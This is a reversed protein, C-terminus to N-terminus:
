PQKAAGFAGIFNKEGDLSEMIITGGLEAAQPGYFSAEITGRVGTAGDGNASVDGIIHNDAAIYHLTPTSFDWIENGDGDVDGNFIATRRYFNVDANIVFTVAEPANYANADSDYDQIHGAGKGTFKVITEASAAPNPIGAVGGIGVTKIGALGYGHVLSSNDTKDLEWHILAMYKTAFGFKTANSAVHLLSTGDSFATISNSIEKAVETGMATNDGVYEDAGVYLTVDKLQGPNDGDFTVKIVPADYRKLSTTGANENYDRTVGTLASLNYSLDTASAFATDFDAPLPNSIAPMNAHNTAIADGFQSTHTGNNLGFVGFYFNNQGIARFNGALESGGAGYFNAEIDGYMLGGIDDNGVTFTKNTDAVIENNADLSLVTNGPVSGVKFDLETVRDGGACDANVVDKCTNTFDLSVTDASFNIDATVDFRTHYYIGGDREFVGRGKGRFKVASALAIFDTDATTTIGTVIFGDTISSNAILNRTKDKTGVDELRWNIFAMHHPYFGFTQLGRDVTITALDLNSIYVSDDLDNIINATSVSKDASHTFPNNQKSAADPDITLEFASVVENYNSYEFTTSGTDLQVVVRTVEGKDDFIISATPNTIIAYHTATREYDGYIDWDHGVASREYKFKNYDTNFALANMTFTKNSNARDLIAETLSTYAAPIDEMTPPTVITTTPDQQQIQYAADSSNIKKRLGGFAGYYYTNGNSMAFTGGLEHAHLGYFRADLTGSLDNAGTGTNVAGTIQNSIFDNTVTDVFDNNALKNDGTYTKAAVHKITKGNTYFIDDTSFDLTALRDAGTCDANAVDKCTNSSSINIAQDNFRVQATIDFVTQYNENSDNEYVGRGKGTFTADRLLKPIDGFKTEIGAIMMGQREELSNGTLGAPGNEFVYWNIYLMNGADFGFFSNDRTLTIIQTETGDTFGLNETIDGTFGTKNLTGNNAASYSTTADLDVKFSAIEGDDKLRVQISSGIIRSLTINKDSDATSWDWNPARKRNAADIKSVAIANMIFNRTEESTIYDNSQNYNITHNIDPQTIDVFVGDISSTTKKLYNVDNLAHDFAQYINASALYGTPLERPTLNNGNDIATTIATVDLAISNVIGDRGAGFAGYYYSNDDTLAFTGGLERLQTGYFRTNLKGTLSGLTLNNDNINNETYTILNTSFNLSNKWEDDGDECDIKTVLCTNNSSIKITKNTGFDVDAVIDFVTDYSADDDSTDEYTGRGRGTFQVKGDRANLEDLTTEVGAIMSGSINYNRDELITDDTALASTKTINWDIYALYNTNYGFFDKSRDVNIETTTPNYDAGSISATFKTATAVGNLVDSDYKKGNDLYVTVASIKNNTDFTLSIGSNSVLGVNITQNVDGDNWERSPARTYITTDDKYVFLANTTFANSDGDSAADDIDDSTNSNIATDIATKTADTVSLDVYNLAEYAIGSREAGFTGYYYNQNTADALVFTGGIEWASGGYFRADIRGTLQASTVPDIVTSAFNDFSNGGSSKLTVQNLNLYTLSDDGACDANKVDKCTNDIKITLDKATFDITAIVDFITKQGAISTTYVEGKYNGYVGRGKSTFNATGALNELVSDPTEIGAIISGAIDYKNQTLGTNEGDFAKNPKWSLHVMYNPTFGFATDTDVTFDGVTERKEDLYATVASITGDANFSLTIASTPIRSPTIDRDINLNATETWETDTTKRKYITKDEAFVSLAKLTVTKADDILPPLYAYPTNNTDTPIDAETPAGTVVTKEVVNNVAFTKSNTFAVDGGGDDDDDDDDDDDGGGGGDQPNGLAGGGGGSSGCATITISLVCLLIISLLLQRM